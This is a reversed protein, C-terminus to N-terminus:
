QSFKTKRVMGFLWLSTGTIIIVIPVLDAFSNHSGYSTQNHIGHIVNFINALLSLVSFITLGIVARSRRSQEVHSTGLYKIGFLLLFAIVVVQFIYAVAPANSPIYHGGAWGYGAAILIIAASRINFNNRTASM